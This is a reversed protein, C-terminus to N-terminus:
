HQNGHHIFQFFVDRGRVGQDDKTTGLIPLSICRGPCISGSLANPFSWHPQLYYNIIGSCRSLACTCFEPSRRAPLQVSTKTNGLFFSCALYFLGGALQVRSFRSFPLSRAYQLNQPGSSPLRSTIFPERSMRRTVDVVNIWRFEKEHYKFFSVSKRWIYPEPFDGRLEGNM